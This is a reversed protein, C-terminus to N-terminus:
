LYVSIIIVMTINNNNNNDQNLCVILVIINSLCYQFYMMYIRILITNIKKCKKLKIKYVLIYIQKKMKNTRPQKM